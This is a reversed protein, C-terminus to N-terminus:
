RWARRPTLTWTTDLGSVLVTDGRLARFRIGNVEEGLQMLVGGERGPIGEVLAHWPPGGLLGVLALAPRSPAPAAPGAPVLPAWPDYRVSTPRRELRFPDRRRTAAAAAALGNTDPRAPRGASTLDAAAPPAVRPVATSWAGISAVMSVAALAWAAGLLQRHAIM